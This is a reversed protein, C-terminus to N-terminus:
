EISYHGHRAADSGDILATSFASARCRSISADNAGNHGPDLFVIKGAISTPVAAAQPADVLAATVLMAAAAAIGVRLRLADPM